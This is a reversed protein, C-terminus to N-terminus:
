GGSAQMAAPLPTRALHHGLRLAPEIFLPLGLTVVATGLGVQGGIAWGIAVVTADLALRVTAPRLRYRTYLGVFLADQPSAGLDSALYFAVGVGVLLMGVLLMGVRAALAEPTTMVDLLAGIGVGATMLVATAIWPRQGLWAWALVLLLLSEGVVVAGYGAGTTAVLGTELVQWSGVGLEATIALAIGVVLSALGSAFVAWRRPSGLAHRPVLVTM